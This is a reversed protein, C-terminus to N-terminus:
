ALGFQPLPAGARIAAALAQDDADGLDPRLAEWRDVLACAEAHHGRAAEVCARVRLWDFTPEPEIPVLAAAEDVKGDLVLLLAYMSRLVPVAPGLRALSAYVARHRRLPWGLLVIVWDRVLNTPSVEADAVFADLHEPGLGAPLQASRPHLALQLWEDRAQRPGFTGRVVDLFRQGDTAVGFRRRPVLNGVALFLWVGVVNAAFLGPRSDFGALPAFLLAGVLNALPGGLYFLARRRADLEPLPPRATVFGNARGVRVGAFAAHLDFDWLLGRVAISRLHWGVAWAALAHGAEHVVVGVLLSSLMAGSAFPVWTAPSPAVCGFVAVSLPGLVVLLAVAVDTVEAPRPKADPPGASPAAAPRPAAAPPPSPM